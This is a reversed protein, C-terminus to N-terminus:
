GCSCSVHLDDDAGIMRAEGHLALEDREQLTEAVFDVINAGVIRRRDIKRVDRALDSRRDHGAPRLAAQHHAARADAGRDAGVLHLANAGGDTVVHVRRMLAHLVVIGVDEAQPCLDDPVLEREVQQLRVEARLEGGLFVEATPHPLEGLHLLVGGSFQGPQRDLYRHAPVLGVRELVRAADARAADKTTLGHLLMADALIRFITRRPNLASRPDQLVVQLARRLRRDAPDRALIDEGAFRLTGATPEILRLILRGLTTKGSGSEGVLALTEGARIALSVDDVARVRPAASEFLRRVPAFHKCLGQVLLLPEGHHSALWAKRSSTM